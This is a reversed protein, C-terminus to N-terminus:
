CMKKLGKKPYYVRSKEFKGKKGVGKKSIKGNPAKPKIEAFL